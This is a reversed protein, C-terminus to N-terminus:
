PRTTFHTRNQATGVKKFIATFSSTARIYVTLRGALPLNGTSQLQLSVNEQSTVLRARIRRTFIRQYEIQGDIQRNM